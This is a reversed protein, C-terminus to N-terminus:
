GVGLMERAEDVTAVERGLTEAQERVKRVLDANSPQGLETYPYDGLGIAIHGGERIVKETLQFLNGNFNSLIWELQRDPPIFALHADLGAETGPHGALMTGDTLVILFPLPGTLLGMDMFALTQRIFSVNWCVLYHKMQHAAINQAFYELTDTGNKYILGKTRYGPEEPNYWDVNVSGMDMPAFEPRTEPDKSLAVVNSLREEADADLTVYGLTPNIMTNSQSRIARITKEYTLFDHDPSGDAHRGHFHIISAGEVQCAEADQAIEDPLWPVHPNAERSQYENIRAEIILKKM